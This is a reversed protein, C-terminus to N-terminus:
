ARTGKGQEARCWLNPEQPGWALTGGGPEALAASIPTVAAPLSRSPRRGEVMELLTGGGWALPQTERAPMCMELKQPAARSRPELVGSGGM